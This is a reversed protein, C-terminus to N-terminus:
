EPAEQIPTPTSPHVQRFLAATASQLPLLQRACENEGSNRAATELASAAQALPDAALNAAAGKIAHASRRVNELDHAALASRIDNLLSPLSDLFAHLMQM